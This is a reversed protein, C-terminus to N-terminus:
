RHGLSICAPGHHWTVIRGCGTDSLCRAATGSFAIYYVKVGVPTVAMLRFARKLM